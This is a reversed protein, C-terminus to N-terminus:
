QNVIFPCAKGELMCILNDVAASAMNNTAEKTHAGTHPTLVVTDMEFMACPKPPEEEFADLGLGGLKGSKLAEYAADEDIIGGRSANILIVGDKMQAIANADIMHRTSELLPLHLSIVDSTRYVQELSLVAIDNEKCYAENIYPDYAQVKMGFGKACRAVVKGIAGLGLIGITKGLLEMGNCRVWKGQKTENHQYPIKRAVALLLAFALEGVAEANTGPTNSVPIGKAKAAELDVNNLGVGYRSIVKLNPCADMVKATIEDLGALLADCGQLHAILADEDLPKGTRNFVVDPCYQMLREIAEIKKEPQLSTPTVLIKM